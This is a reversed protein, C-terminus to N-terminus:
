VLVGIGGDVHAGTSTSITEEVAVVIMAWNMKFKINDATAVGIVDATKM